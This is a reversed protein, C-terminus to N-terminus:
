LEERADANLISVIILNEHIRQAGKSLRESPTQDSKLSQGTLTHGSHNGRETTEIETM